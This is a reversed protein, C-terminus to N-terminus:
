IILISHSTLIDRGNLSPRDPEQPAKSTNQTLNTATSPFTQTLPLDWGSKKLTPAEAQIELQEPTEPTSCPQFYCDDSMWAANKDGSQEQTSEMQCCAMDCATDAPILTLAPAVGGFIFSLSLVMITVQRIM